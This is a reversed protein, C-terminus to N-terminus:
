IQLPIPKWLCFHSHFKFTLCCVSNYAWFVTRYSVLHKAYVSFSVSLWNLRRDVVHVLPANCILSRDGCDLGTADRLWDCVCESAILRWQPSQDQIQLAGWYHHLFLGPHFPNTFCTPKLGVTVSRRMKRIIYSDSHVALTTFWTWCLFVIHCVLTLFLWCSSLLQQSRRGNPWLQQTRAHPREM